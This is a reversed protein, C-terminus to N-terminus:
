NNFEAESISRENLNGGASHLTVTIRSVAYASETVIFADSVTYQCGNPNCYRIKLRYEGGSVAVTRSASSDIEVSGATPGLVRVTAHDEALNVITLTPSNRASAAVTLVVFIISAWISRKMNEPNGGDLPNACSNDSV